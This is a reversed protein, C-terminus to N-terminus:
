GRLVLIPLLAEPGDLLRSGEGFFLDRHCLIVFFHFLFRVVFLDTFFSRINSLSSLFLLYLVGVCSFSDLPPPLKRDSSSIQTLNHPFAGTLVFAILPSLASDFLRFRDFGATWYFLSFEFFSRLALPLPPPVEVNDRAHPCTFVTQWLSWIPFIGLLVNVTTM